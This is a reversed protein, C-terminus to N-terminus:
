RRSACEIGVRREESRAHGPFGFLASQLRLTDSGSHSCQQAVRSLANVKHGLGFSVSRQHYGALQEDSIFPAIPPIPIEPPNLANIHGLFKPTISNEPREEIVDLSPRFLPLVD